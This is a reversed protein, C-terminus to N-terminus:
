HRKKPKTIPPKRLYIPQLTSINDFNGTELRKQGLEALFSARRLRAAPPPIVAKQKLRQKLETAVESIYEGCFVTKKSIKLCLADLTTIHEPTIQLWENGKMQYTATAIEERGANFIPCIPLGTEAHQYAAAELTSIGIIPVGLSLALGKATAMGVRLGNFSGPGKAVIICQTAQLSVKAKELLLTLHPLLEATHNQGCHWTLEALVQSEQVLAISAIETSTDIALKM